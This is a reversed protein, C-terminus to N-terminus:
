ADDDSKRDRGPLLTDDFRLHSAAPPEARLRAGQRDGGRGECIRASVQLNALPQLLRVGRGYPQDEAVPGVAELARDYRGSLRYVYQAAFHVSPENPALRLLRRVEKQAVDSRGDFLDIFVLSVRPEVLKSDLELAREFAAKAKSYNETGGMGKLVYNLYCMGLGSHALAFNPDLDTAQEFMGIASELDAADLTQTIFKYLLTRGKLYNEYAEANETPAEQRAAGARVISTRVRLGEVIKHSITDQVTIIDRSDVDIKESWVIEGSGTDVLQPTVRFRDGGKIYGGILVADVALQTGVLARTM